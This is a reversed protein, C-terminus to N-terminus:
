TLVHNGRSIFEIIKRTPLILRQFLKLSFVFNQQVKKVDYNKIVIHFNLKFGKITSVYRVCDWVCLAKGDPSWKLDALDKTEVEFHNLWRWGDCAFLSVYDKFNHREAM